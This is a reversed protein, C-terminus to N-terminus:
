ARGAVDEGVVYRLTWYHTLEAVEVNSATPVAARLEAVTPFNKRVTYESGDDLRRRQYTDGGADTFAIPTSSGEVYRNDCAWVVAGPRLCAHLAHLFAALRVRPVHSWWFAVVAASFPAGAAVAESALPEYADAHAFRVVGPPYTKREARALVAASVDTALVECATSAYRETWYGTGCAVELVDRGAVAARVSATLRALDARRGPKAYVREYEPARRTYYALLDSPEM